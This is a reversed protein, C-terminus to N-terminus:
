NIKRPKSLEAVAVLVGFLVLILGEIKLQVAYYPNWIALSSHLWTTVAANESWAWLLLAHFVGFAALPKVFRVQLNKDRAVAYLVLAMFLSASAWLTMFFYSFSQAAVPWDGTSTLRFLSFHFLTEGVM